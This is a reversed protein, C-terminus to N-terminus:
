HFDIQVGIWDLPKLRPPHFCFSSSCWGVFVSFNTLDYTSFHIGEAYLRPLCFPLSMFEHSFLTSCHYVPHIAVIHFIFMYLFSCIISSVAMMPPSSRGSFAFCKLSLSLSLSLSVSSCVWKGNLTMNQCSTYSSSYLGLPRSQNSRCSAPAGTTAALVESSFISETQTIMNCHYSLTISM